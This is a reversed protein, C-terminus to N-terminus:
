TQKRARRHRVPAATSGRSVLHIPLVRHREVPADDAPESQLSSLLAWAERGLDRLPVHVSTLEPYGYLEAAVDNTGVLSVDGPIALGREHLAAACGVAVEDTVAVIATFERASELLEKVGLSGAERSFGHMSVLHEDVALGARGLAEVYGRYRDEGTTSTRLGGVFAITQHGLELLHETALEGALRNDVCVSPIEIDYRGVAVVPINNDALQDLTRTLAPTAGRDRVEGGILVTGAARLGLMMRLYRVQKEPVRDDNGVLLAAGAETAVEEVGRIVNNFFPDTIDHVVVGVLSSQGTVLARALSDAVYNLAQAAELM